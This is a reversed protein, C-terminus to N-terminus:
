CLWPYSSDASVLHAMPCTHRRTIIYIHSTYVKSWIIPSSNAVQTDSSLHHHHHHFFTFRCCCRDANSLMLVALFYTILNSTFPLMIAAKLFRPLPMNLTKFFTFWCCMITKTCWMCLNEHRQNHVQRSKVTTKLPGRPLIIDLNWQLLKTTMPKTGPQCLWLFKKRCWFREPDPMKCLQCCFLHYLEEQGHWAPTCPSYFYLGLALQPTLTWCWAGGGKGVLSNVRNGM